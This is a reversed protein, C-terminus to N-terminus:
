DFYILWFLLFMVDCVVLELFVLYMVVLISCIGNFIKNMVILLNNVLVGKEM